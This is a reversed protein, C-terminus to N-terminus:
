VFIDNSYPRPTHVTEMLRNRLDDLKSGKKLKLSMLLKFKFM